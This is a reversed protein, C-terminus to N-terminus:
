TAPAFVLTGNHGGFGFSNSLAVGPQWPRRDTVVDVLGTEEDPEAFGMTPPLERHQYGLCVAAAELAGAAGLGHGTVGKVSTVPVRRDGTLAAIAQAEAADNLSTSTGHANVHTVAAASLGADELALQMCRLAGRGQPSPATVHFADANSAAGAIVAYVRAGRARAADLPELMLLAAGEGAVFGDRQRDFPRSIGTSSMAGANTFGAVTTGVLSADSGGALVTDCIGLAILRAGAAISHTGAACATTITEAPGQWGLRLSVAAAGANPMIMPVTYPSVRGSGRSDNVLVAAEWTAVGGIGTGVQVGAREPDVDALRLGANQVALDAAAVAFQQFRDAHRADKPAFWPSPDWGPVSRIREPAAEQFLGHWFDEVGVGCVSVVGIGTVAVQRGDAAGRM